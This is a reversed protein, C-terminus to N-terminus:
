AHTKSRAPTKRFRKLVDACERLAPLHADRSARRLNRIEALIDAEHASAHLRECAEIKRSEWAIAAELADSLTAFHAAQTAHPKPLAVRYRELLAQLARMHREEAEKLMPFPRVPGFERIVQEYTSCTCSTDEFAKRLARIDPRSLKEM